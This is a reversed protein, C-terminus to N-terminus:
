RGLWLLKWIPNRRKQRDYLQLEPTWWRCIETFPSRLKSIQCTFVENRRMHANIFVPHWADQASPPSCYPILTIRLFRDYERHYYQRMRSWITCISLLSGKRLIQKAGAESAAPGDFAGISGNLDGPLLTLSQGSVLDTVMDKTLFTSFTSEPSVMTRMLDITTSSMLRTRWLCWRLCADTCTQFLRGRFFVTKGMRSWKRKLSISKDFFDPGPVLNGDPDKAYLTVLRDEDTRRSFDRCHREHWLISSCEKFVDNVPKDCVAEIIGAALESSFGYIWHTGPDCALPAKPCPLYINKWLTLDKEWLAAYVGAHWDHCSRPNSCCIVIPFVANQVHCWPYQNSPQNSRYRCLRESAQRLPYKSGMGSSLRWNPRHPSVQWTWLADDYSHLAFKPISAQRFLTDKTVPTQHRHWHCRFLGWLPHQRVPRSETRLRSSRTKLVRRFAPWKNQM